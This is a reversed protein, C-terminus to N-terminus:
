ANALRQATLRTYETEARVFLDRFAEGPKQAALSQHWVSGDCGYHLVFEWYLRAPKGHAAADRLYVPAGYCEIADAHYKNLQTTLLAFIQDKPPTTAWLAELRERFEQECTEAETLRYHPFVLVRAGFQDIAFDRRWQEGGYGSFLAYQFRERLNEVSSIAHVDSLGRVRGSTRGLQQLTPNCGWRTKYQPNLATEVMWRYVGLAQEICYPQPWFCGPRIFEILRYHGRTRLSSTKANM